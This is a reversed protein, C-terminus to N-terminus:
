CKIWSNLHNTTVWVKCPSSVTPGSLMLLSSLRLCITRPPSVILSEVRLATASSLAAVVHYYKAADDDIIDRLAFQAEAQAFWTAPSAEWFEPLKIPASM